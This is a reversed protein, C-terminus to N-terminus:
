KTTLIKNVRSVLDDALDYLKGTPIMSPWVLESYNNDPKIAKIYIGEQERLRVNKAEILFRDQQAAIHGRARQEAGFMWLTESTSGAFPNAWLEIYIMGRSGVDLLYTKSMGASENQMAWLGNLRELEEGTITEIKKPVRNSPSKDDKKKRAWKTQDAKSKRYGLDWMAGEFIPGQGQMLQELEDMSWWGCDGHKLAYQFADEPKKCCDEARLPLNDNLWVEPYGDDDMRLDGLYTCSFGKSYLRKKIDNFREGAKRYEAKCGETGEWVILPFKREEM